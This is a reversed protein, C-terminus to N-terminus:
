AVFFARLIIDNRNLTKKKKFRIELKRFRTKDVSQNDAFRYTRTGTPWSSAVRIFLMAHFRRRQVDLAPNLKKEDEYRICM